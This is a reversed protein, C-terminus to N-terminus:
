ESSEKKECNECPQVSKRRLAELEDWPEIQDREFERRGVEPLEVIVTMQLPLTDVVRGEGMPTVVRKNRKPLVKRATVYQEYEYVLCCRLRGCIGTIETPTLSIGQEKAMKISIPSFDTLFKSCCRTELGCAGLGGLIKAVDRPGIQRMEIQAGPYLNGMDNRLSKLDVKEDTESSFMFTLRSGDFSFEAAVIKIGALKLEAARQRCNITAEVEKRQWTQRLLLDRPTARREVPKWKGEPPPSPKEVLQTVEGLQRGRTTEVIVRDGVQIDGIASADFHYVKGISQFRVGVILPQM